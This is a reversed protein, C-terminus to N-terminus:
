PRVSITSASGLWGPEAAFSATLTWWNALSPDGVLYIDTWGLTSCDPSYGGALGAQQEDRQYAYVALTCSTGPALSGIEPNANGPPSVSLGLAQPATSTLLIAYCDEQFDLAPNPPYAVTPPVLSGCDAATAMLSATTAYPAITESDTETVATAGTPIYETTVAYIGTTTYTIPCGAGSTSGGVNISCYLEQPGGPVTASYLNLIGSPLDDDAALNLTDQGTQEIANASYAYTVALPDTPSQTFSPDVATKYTIKAGTLTAPLGLTLKVKTGNKEREGAKPNQSTVLLTVTKALRAKPRTAKGTKCHAARLRKEAKAETYGVVKPVVCRPRTKAMAAGPSILLGAALMAGFAVVIVTFRGSARM